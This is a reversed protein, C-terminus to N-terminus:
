HSLAVFDGKKGTAIRHGGSPKYRAALLRQPQARFGNVMQRMMKHKQLFHEPKLVLEVEDVEVHVIKM